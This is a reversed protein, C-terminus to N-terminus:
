GIQLSPAANRWPRVMAAGLCVWWNPRLPTVGITDGPDYGGIFNGLVPFSLSSSYAIFWDFPYGFLGDLNVTKEGSLIIPLMTCGLGGQLAPFNQSYTSDVSRTFGDATNAVEFTGGGIRVLRSVFSTTVRAAGGSWGAAGIAVNTPNFNLGAGSGTSGRTFSTQRYGMYAPVLVGTGCLNNVKEVGISAQLTGLRFNANSWCTTDNSCWITMVRDGSATNNTISNGVSNAVEDTATPQNTSPTALTYLGGPSYSIRIIDATAGQYAILVDVGDVNTLVTYSQPNGAAAGQTSAAAVSVIRDTHDAGSTPGTTGDSTYKVTWGVAKMALHNQQIWYGSQDALTTFVRRLNPTITWNKVAQPQSM